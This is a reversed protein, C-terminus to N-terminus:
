ASGAFRAAATSTGGTVTKPVAATGITGRAGANDAISMATAPVKAAPTAPMARQKAASGPAANGQGSPARPEDVIAASEPSVSVPKQSAM